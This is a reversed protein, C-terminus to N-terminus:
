HSVQARANKLNAYYKRRFITLAPMSGVRGAFEFAM